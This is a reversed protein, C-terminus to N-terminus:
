LVEGVEVEGFCGREKWNIFVKHCVTSHQALSPLERHRCGMLMLTDRPSLKRRAKRSGPSNEVPVQLTILCPLISHSAKHTLSKSGDSGYVGTMKTSKCQLPSLTVLRPPDKTRHALTGMHQHPHQCKCRSGATQNETTSVPPTALVTM